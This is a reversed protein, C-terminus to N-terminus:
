EELEYVINSVMAIPATETRLIRKGLTVITAGAQKLIEIEKKDIGGEPGILIGINNLKRNQLVEKLKIKREDEYAVIFIDYEQTKKILEKLNCVSHVTPIVDRKSQKAASEAIKQWRDIKKNEDKPDIKVVCREMAVPTISKIGLETTKQIILEMKDAKPIGQYVDIIINTETKSEIKEIINCIIEKENYNEINCIYNQSTEENCIQIEDGQKLRLVSIIHKVDTGIIKVKNEEIQNSKVFFKQM